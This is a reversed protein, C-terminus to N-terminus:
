GHYKTELVMSVSDYLSRILEKELKIADGHESTKGRLCESLEAQCIHNIHGANHSGTHDILIRPGDLRCRGMAVIDSVSVSGSNNKIAKALDEGSFGSAGPSNVYERLALPIRVNNTYPPKYLHPTDELSNIFNEPHYVQPPCFTSWTIPPPRGSQGALRALFGLERDMLTEMYAIEQVLRKPGTTHGGNPGHKALHNVQEATSLAAEDHTRDRRTRKPKHKPKPKAKPKPKMEKPQM